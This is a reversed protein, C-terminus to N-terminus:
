VQDNQHSYVGRLVLAAGFRTFSPLKPNQLLFPLVLWGVGCNIGNLKGGISRIAEVGIGLLSAIRGFYNVAGPLLVHM